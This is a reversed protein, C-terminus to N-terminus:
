MYVYLVCIDILTLIVNCQYSIDLKGGFKNLFVDNKICVRGM